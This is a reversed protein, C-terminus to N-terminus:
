LRDDSWPYAHLDDTSNEIVQDYSKEEINILNEDDDFLNWIIPDEDSLFDSPDYTSLDSETYKGKHSKSMCGGEQGACQYAFKAPFLAGPDTPVMLRLKFPWGDSRVRDILDQVINGATKPWHQCWCFIIFEHPMTQSAKMWMQSKVLKDLVTQRLVQEQEKTTMNLTLPVRVVQVCYLDGTHLDFMGDPTGPGMSGGFTRVLEQEAWERRVQDELGRMCEQMAVQEARVNFPDNNLSNGAVASHKKKRHGAM